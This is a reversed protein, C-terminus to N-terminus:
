KKHHLYYIRRIGHKAMYNKFIYQKTREEIRYDSIVLANKGQTKMVLRQHKIEWFVWTSKMEQQIDRNLHWFMSGYLFLCTMWVIWKKAIWRSGWLWFMFVGYWLFVEIRTMYFGTVVSFPLHAIEGNLRNLGWACWGTLIGIGSALTEFGACAWLGLGLPVLAAALFATVLNTIYFYTPFQHFYYLTLPFTVLQASLGLATLEWIWYIAKNEPLWWRLITPYFTLIGWVAVFSLQFGVDFLWNPEIVLLLLATAYLLNEGSSHRQFWQGVLVLYFMVTARMVSATLGTFGAYLTLTIISIILKPKVWAKPWIWIQGRFLLTLLGYVLTIHMGSVALIHVAGAATYHDKVEDSLHDRRGTIMAETVDAAEKPFIYRKYFGGVARAQFLLWRKLSFSSAKSALVLNSRSVWIQYAIGQRKMYTHFDFDTERDPLPIPQLKGKVIYTFGPVLQVTSQKDIYILLHGKRPSWRNSSDLSGKLQAKVRWTKPTEEPFHDFQILYYPAEMQKPIPKPRSALGCLWFLLLATLRHFSFKSGVLFVALGMGLLLAVESSLSYTCTLGLCFALLPGLIPANQLM